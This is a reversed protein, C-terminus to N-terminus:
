VINSYSIFSGTAYHVRVYNKVDPYNLSITL